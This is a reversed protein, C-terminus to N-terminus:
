LLPPGSQETLCKGRQQWTAADLARFLGDPDLEMGTLVQIWLVIRDVEGSVAVPVQWSRVTRDYSATWLTQGDPSFAVDRVIRQHVLPPGCRKGTVADWLRATGDWTGTAIMQGDPSFAVALVHDNHPLPPGLPQRTATDWFRATGDDWTGTLLKRGDPSFAVARVPGRHPLPSGIPQGTAVSWLRATADECGTLLTQGDPSFAVALVWHPHRLPEGRPHGTAADWLRLTADKCGTAITKGDPSFAVAYVEDPHELAPGRPTGEAVAWLRATKDSSGTVVTQGDPSFAVRYISRQHTLPQGVPQGTATNWLQASPGASGTAITRGDPSLALCYVPQEHRLLVGPSRAEAKEWLRVKGDASGASGTALRRQDPSWAVAYVASSHHVPAGLSKLTQADWFRVKGDAGGTWLTQGDRSFGVSRVPGHHALTRGLLRRTDTDWLRVLGEEGGTALLRDTPHFAISWVEGEHRLPVGRPQGTAAEFLKVIPSSGALALTQGDPSFAVAYVPRSHLLPVGRAQGTATEWLQATGDASGTLLTQSDPSFAVALVWDAHKLLPGFPRGSVADWLRVNQDTGATALLAGNPSFAVARIERGGHPLAEGIPQGTAADWRRPPSARGGTLLVKGDPSFAVAHVEGRHELIARLHFPMQRYAATLNSRLVQHLDAAEAPAIQLGRGLLLMGPAVDGQDLLTLGRELALNTSLREAKRRFEEAQVLAARTQAQQQGLEHANQEARAQQFEADQLAAHTRAQEQSLQRTYVSSVALGAVALLAVIGLVGAALAAPNRWCWRLGRELPGARRAAVPEGAQFRRLDEALTLANGYRKGPEKELCKLCITELDHPVKPQLLSPPVPEQYCVNELTGLVTAGLLPPRGTLCEYLVAGLAYVDTAPGIPRGQNKGWAQEPAMYAPTGVIEGTATLDDGEIPHALGFDTIKPITLQLNLTASQAVSPAFASASVSSGPGQAMLINAPKLDRHVIGQEHAYHVARALTELLAAAPGPALAANHLRDCLSPGAVFELALFPQGDHEGVEFIQVIHPHHLRATAQAERRFRARATADALKMRSLVKLAVHRGLSEQVAEYVVGMGGRGLRRLIRYEGLRSPLPDPTVTSELPSYSELPTQTPVAAERGLSELLAAADPFRAKYEALDPQDGARLRYEWEVALLHRLLLTRLPEDAGELYAELRPRQGAQWNAEFRDCLADVERARAVSDTSSQGGASM